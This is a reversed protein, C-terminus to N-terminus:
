FFLFTYKTKCARYKKNNNIKITRINLCIKENFTYVQLDVDDRGGWIEKRKEKTKM